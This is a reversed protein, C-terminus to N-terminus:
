PITNVLRATVVVREDYTKEGSIWTGECTILALRPLRGAYLIKEMPVSKYDYSSVDTVVFHLKTGGHELIFIDTGKQINGLEKFVGSLGLGNDVHGDIVAEGPDGPLAGYEYWAVDTFNTPTGMTGRKTITTDQVAANISLTPIILRSPHNAPIVKPATGTPSASNDTDYAVAHVLTNTFFGIAGLTIIAAVLSSKKM